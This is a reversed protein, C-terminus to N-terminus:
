QHLREDDDIEDPRTAHTEKVTSRIPPDGTDVWHWYEAETWGNREALVRNRLSDRVPEALGSEVVRVLGVGGYPPDRERDVPLVPVSGERPRNM